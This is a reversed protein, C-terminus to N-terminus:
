QNFKAVVMLPIKKWAGGSYFYYYTDDYSQWGEEGKDGSNVPVPLRRNTISKKFMEIDNNNQSSLKLNDLILQQEATINVLKQSRWKDNTEDDPRPEWNTPVIETEMIVKKPTLVKETTPKFGDLGPAFLEPLLYGKLTLDFETRVVRDKENQVETTNSYSDVQTRFRFGDSSGWYDNTEFNIREILFNMQEVYETWLIFKYHFDMHDPMVVNYVEHVPKNTPVLASFRTYQNKESYKKIVSTRLYKNFMPQDTSADISTRYFILAPLILKGNNDRMFGHKRVSVWKEPSAYMIPVKIHNGADVVSLQMKELHTLVTTDIDKITVTFNKIKDKDRRLHLARNDGIRGESRNIDHQIPNPPNNTSNGRWRNSVPVQDWNYPYNNWNYPTTDWDTLPNPM